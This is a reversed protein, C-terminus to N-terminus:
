DQQLTRVRQKLNISEQSYDTHVCAQTVCLEIESQASEEEEAVCIMLEGFPCVLDPEVEM